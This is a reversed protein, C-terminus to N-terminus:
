GKKEGRVMALGVQTLPYALARAGDVAQTLNGRSLDDGCLAVHALYEVLVAAGDVSGM